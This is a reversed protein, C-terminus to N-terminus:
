PSTRRRRATPRVSMPASRAKCAGRQVSTPTGTGVGGGGVGGRLQLLPGEPPAGVPGRGLDLSQEALPRLPCPELPVPFLFPPDVPPTPSVSLHPIPSALDLRPCTVCPSPVAFQSSVLSTARSATELHKALPYGMICRCSEAAREAFNTGNHLVRPPITAIYKSLHEEPHPSALPAPRPEPHCPISPNNYPHSSFPLITYQGITFASVACSPPSAVPRTGKPGCLRPKHLAVPMGWHRMTSVLPIHLTVQM